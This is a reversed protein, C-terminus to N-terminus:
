KLEIWDSGIWRWASSGLTSMNARRSVALSAGGREMNTIFSSVGCASSPSSSSLSLSAHFSISMSSESKSLACRFAFACSRASFLFCRSACFATCFAFFGVFSPTLAHHVKNFLLLIFFPPSFFSYLFCCLLRHLLPDFSSQIWQSFIPKLKKKKKNQKTQEFCLTHMFETENM